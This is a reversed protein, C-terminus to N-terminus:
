VERNTPLTLHTYSVTKPVLSKNAGSLGIHCYYDNARTDGYDTIVNYKHCVSQITALANSYVWVDNSDPIHQKVKNYILDIYNM